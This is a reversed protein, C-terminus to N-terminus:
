EEMLDMEITTMKSEKQKVLVELFTSYRVVATWTKQNFKFRKYAKKLWGQMSPEGNEKVRSYWDVVMEMLLCNNMNNHEGAWFEPHHANNKWHERKAKEFLKDPEDRWLHKWEIGSLKSDDHEFLHRCLLKADVFEGKEELWECFLMGYKIVNQKHTILENFRVVEKKTCETM